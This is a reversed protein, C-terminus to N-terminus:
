RLRGALADEVNSTVCVTEYDLPRFTEVHDPDNVRVLVTEVDFCTRALQAVLLNSGDSTTAAVVADAESLGARELVVSDTPDGEVVPVGAAMAETVVDPTDDVLCAHAGDTRLRDVLARGVRGGGVVHITRANEPRGAPVSARRSTPPPTSTTM